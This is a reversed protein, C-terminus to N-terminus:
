ANGYSEQACRRKEKPIAKNLEVVFLVLEGWGITLKLDRANRTM